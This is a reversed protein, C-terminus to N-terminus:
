TCFAVHFYIRLLGGLDMNKVNKGANSGFSKYDIGYSIIKMHESIELYYVSIILICLLLM